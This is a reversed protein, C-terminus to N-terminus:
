EDRQGETYEIKVRAILLEDPFKDSAAEKASRYFRWRKAGKLINVYATRKEPVNILDYQSCNNPATGDIRWGSVLVSDGIYGWVPLNSRAELTLITVQDGDRTQVPKTFDIMVEGRNNDRGLALPICAV